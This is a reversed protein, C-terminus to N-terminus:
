PAPHRLTQEARDPGCLSRSCDHHSITDPTPYTQRSLGSGGLHSSGNGYQYRRGMCVVARNFLPYRTPQEHYLYVTMISPGLRKM